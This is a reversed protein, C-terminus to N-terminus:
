PRQLAPGLRESWTTRTSSRQRASLLRTRRKRCQGEGSPAEVHVLFVHAARVKAMEPSDLRLSTEATGRQGVHFSLPGLRLAGRDGKLWVRVTVRAPENSAGSVSLRLTNRAHSASAKAILDGAVCEGPAGSARAEWSGGEGGVPELEGDEGIEFEEEEGEEEWEWEVEEEVEEEAAAQYRLSRDIGAQSSGPQAATAVTCTVLAVGVAISILAALRRM